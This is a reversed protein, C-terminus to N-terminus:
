GENNGGDKNEFQKEFQAMDFKKPKTATRIQVNALYMAPNRNTPSYGDEGKRAYRPFVELGNAKLRRTFTHMSIKYRDAVRNEHCWIEYVSYAAKISVSKGQAGPGSLLCENIFMHLDSVGTKFEDTRKRVPDPLNELGENAWHKYGEILWSLWVMRCGIDTAMFADIGSKQVAEEPGIAGGEIGVQVDFPIVILRRWLAADAGDITPPSNSAIYPTFAPVREIMANSYLKRASIADSGGTVRKIMDAHLHWENGGETAHIIRKQLTHVLEARPGEDQKERLLSLNFTSAYSGLAGSIASLITSKGTSTKGQLFFIKRDPNAGFMGYGLAKQAYFRVSLDPLFIGLYEDVMKKARMLGAGSGGSKIQEWPIYDVGTCLTNFDEMRTERLIVSSTNQGDLRKPSFEVTGNGVALIAPDLDFETAFKTIDPYSKAVRIMGTIKSSNRSATGWKLLAKATDVIDDRESGEPMERAYELLDKARAQYNPGVMRAYAVSVNDADEVWIRRENDWVAWTGWDPVWRMRGAALDVLHEANGDDSRDYEAPDKALAIGAFGSGDGRFCPCSSGVPDERAAIREFSGRFSRFWEQEATVRGGDRRGQVEEVFADRFEKLFTNIGSHGEHALSMAHYLNKTLSDHAGNPLEDTATQLAIFMKRCPPLEVGEGISAADDYSGNKARDELWEAIDSDNFTGAAFKKVNRAESFGNTLFEVWRDPLYPLEKKNPVGDHSHWVDSQFADKKYWVYRTGSRANMSPWVVSYRHGHRVIEISPGPKDNYALGQHEPKLRFWRQGSGYDGPEGRASSIWAAPLKGLKKELDRLTKGGTKRKVEGTKKDVADYDDVDISITDPGHVIAINLPGATKDGGVAAKVGARSDRIWEKYKEVGPIKGNRGTFGSPPPDQKGYPLAILHIWGSRRYANVYNQHFPDIDGEQYAFPFELVTM